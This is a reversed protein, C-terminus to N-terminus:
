ATHAALWIPGTQATKWLLHLSAEVALGATDFIVSVSNYSISVLQSSSPLFSLCLM